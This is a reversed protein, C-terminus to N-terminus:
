PTVVISAAGQIQDADVVRVVATGPSGGILVGSQNISGFTAVDVSWTYPAKGGAAFLPLSAGTRVSVATAQIEVVRVDVAVSASATGADRVNIFASGATFGATVTGQSTVTAVSPSTSSWTYPPAGGSVGISRTGQAGLVFNRVDTTLGGTGGGVIPPAVVGGTGGGISAARVNVSALASKNLGDRLTITANGAGVATVLGNQSVSAVGLASSTWQFPSTGGTVNLQASQGNTLSTAAPAVSMAVQSGDLAAIPGVNALAGTSDRATVTFSGGSSLTLVGNQSGTGSGTVTAVSPNNSTWTFPPTGGTVTFTVKSSLRLQTINAPSIAMGAVEVRVPASAKLTADRATVSVSGLAVASFVGTTSSITGVASNNVTWTYPATGGSATFQQGSGVAIQVSGPSVSLVAPGTSAPPTTNVPAPNPTPTPTPNIVPVAVPVPVVSSVAKFANIRGGSIVRGSLGAVADVNGTATMARVVEAVTLNAKQAFLLTGLGTVFPAAMSTGSLNKYAGNRVTSYIGVGPAAVDVSALGFNSFTALADNRDTAAVSVINALKYSSPYEPTTDNNATSNGAAAVFVHGKGGAAQIADFLAQSFAPGGWSSNSIRAGNAVAYNLARIANITSGQGTADMFRLPIIKAKWNVGSIGAANNGIGAIVGAVHTGHDNLDMPTNDNQVFDWGRVDDIYGNGDDDVGNGAIERTNTWINAALDPHNYDVGTDIVAVVVNTGTQLDWAQPAVIKTMGYQVPFSPDNPTVSISLSYNPEAYAVSEDARIINLAQEVTQGPAASAVVLGPVLIGFESNVNERLGAKRLSRSRSETGADASMNILIENNAVPFNDGNPAADGRTKGRVDPIAEGCGSLGATIALTVGAAMLSRLLVIRSSKDSTSSRCRSFTENKSM